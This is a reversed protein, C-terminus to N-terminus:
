LVEHDSLTVSLLELRPSGVVAGLTYAGDNYSQAWGPLPVGSELSIGYLRQGDQFFLEGRDTVPMVGLTLGEEAFTKLQQEFLARNAASNVPYNPKSLAVGYLRAGPKGAAASVRGRSADGGLMPWSDSTAESMSALPAAIDQALADALIADKGRVIGREQPFQQRMKELHAKAQASDGAFYYALATRYLVAPREVILNPHFNLLRDGIWAAAPFEGDEMYLDILRIGAQKAADTVFYINYVKNLTAADDQRANELLTAAPIEYRARYVDLGERPWKALREQVPNTISTYQCIKDDADVRWPVVRDAYKTIVEQYLDASKNWEKLREMKQALTWKEVAAASDRVYVGESPEKGAFAEPSLPDNAPQTVPGPVQADLPTWIAGVLALAVGGAIRILSKPALPM